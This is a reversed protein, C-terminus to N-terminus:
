MIKVWQSMGTILTATSYNQNMSKRLTANGFHCDGVATLIQKYTKSYSM